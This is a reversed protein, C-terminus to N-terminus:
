NVTAGKEILAKIQAPPITSNYELWVTGGASLTPNNILATIDSISNYALSLTTLAELGQLPTLNSINNLSLDLTNLETLNTLPTINSIQNFPLYLKTLKTLREIGQLSQIKERFEGDYSFTTINRIDSYLLDGTPKKVNSRIAKQLVPDNITIVSDKEFRAYLATDEGIFFRYKIEESVVKGKTAADFWGAFYHGTNASAEIFITSGEVYKGDKATTSPVIFGKKSGETTLATLLTFEKAAAPKDQGGGGGGSGGSKDAGSSGGTEDASEEAGTPCGSLLVVLMLLLLLSNLKVRKM